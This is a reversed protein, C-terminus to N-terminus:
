VDHLMLQRLLYQTDKSDTVSWSASTRMCTVACRLQQESAEGPKTRRVSLERLYFKRREGVVIDDSSHGGYAGKKPNAPTAQATLRQFLATVSDIWEGAQTVNCIINLLAHM